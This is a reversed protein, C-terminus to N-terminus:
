PSITQVGSLGQEQQVAITHEKSWYHAGNIIAHATFYLTGPETAGISTSFQGPITGGQIESVRPYGAQEPTTTTSFNRYRSDYGYHVATHNITAYPGDIRWNIAVTGGLNTSSPYNTVTIAREPAYATCGAALVPLLLLFINKHM